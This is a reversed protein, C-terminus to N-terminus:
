SGRRAESATRPLEVGFVCGRGPLDTVQVRGGHAEVARRAISLGLGLGSRDAGKQVFSRFLDDSRHGPLGGCQDEVELTVTGNEVRGRVWVRGGRHSFKIANQVLNTVVSTLLGRDAFVTAAPHADIRVDIQRARCDAVYLAEIDQLFTALPIPERRLGAGSRLRVEVLSQDILERLRRLSRALVGATKGAIGVQRRSLLEFSMTAATVANRLEHAFFGFQEAVSHESAAARQRHYRDLAEAMGTDLCQNLLKFEAPSITENQEEAVTTIATCMSGYDDVVDRIEAGTRARVEGHGAAIDSKDPLPSDEPLGAQRRLARVTEDLFRAAHESSEGAPQARRCLGLIRERHKTILTHLM